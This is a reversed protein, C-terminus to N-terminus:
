NRKGNQIRLLSFIWVNDSSALALLLRNARVLQQTNGDTQVALVSLLDWLDIFIIGYIRVGDARPYPYNQM